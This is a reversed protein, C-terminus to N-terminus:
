FLDYINFGEAAYLDNLMFKIQAIEAKGDGAAVTQPLAYIILNADDIRKMPTFPILKAQEKEWLNLLEQSKQVAASKDSDILSYVEDALLCIKASADYVLFAGFFCIGVCLLFIIFSVALRNM